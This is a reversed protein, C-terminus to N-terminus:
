ASEEVREVRCPIYRLLPNGTLEDIDESATFDNANIGITKGNFTFGFHHPIMVYNPSAQFSVEAPLVGSGTKTSVRVLEGNAVGLRKADDPHMLATDPSRFRYTKPNRMVANVGSDQHRGSSLLMPYEGNLTLEKEEQEPTLRPMVGDVEECWLHLKKDKHYIHDHILRDPDTIAIIAGQPTDDVLQFCADMLCLDKFKPLRELIPHLGLPKIGAREVMGTGSVPAIMLAAWMLARIASGMSRGLTECVILPLIDMNHKDQAALMLLQTFYPIRDGTRAAKDAARYLSAPIKPLLGMNKALDVWIMGGERREGIQATIVPHKLWCGVEPFGGQFTSFAYAEYSSKAPLVYDALRATETMVIDVVVMLELDQFAAEMARSNPYSRAPNTQTFFMARLHDPNKSQIEAPIVAVPYVGLVPFKGTEVTRWTKPDNEDSSEGRGAFVDQVICGGPMLLVGCVAQLVLLLYCAVTNHRSCFVGLDQHMGWKKHTLVHAFKEALEMSIGCVRMSGEIDVNEYWRKARDWDGAWRDLYDQHQWGKKLILAILARLFLADTGNRVPIHMDSMRATESLRPDVTIMMKEADQSFRRIIKRADAMQHSVYSNSGWFILVENRKEDPETFYMQHGLIKGHSWWTGMFELGIPCYWYQSGIANSVFTKALAAESQESALTGGCFAFTRPGHEKLIANARQSIEAYAQQWSIREFHDGVKKLPYNLRDENHVFYKAARGKRCMYNSTRPSDPDPRVNIIENNEIEVEIGCSVACMDCQTKKWEGM